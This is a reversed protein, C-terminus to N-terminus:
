GNHVPRRPSFIHAAARAPRGGPHHRVGCLRGGQSLPLLPLLLRTASLIARSGGIYLRCEFSNGWRQFGLSVLHFLPAAHLWIDEGNLRMEACAACLTRLKLNQCCHAWIRCRPGEAAAM